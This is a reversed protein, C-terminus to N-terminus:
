EIISNSIDHISTSTIVSFDFIINSLVSNSVLHVLFSNSLVLDQLSLFFSETNNNLYAQTTLLEFSDTTSNFFMDMITAPNFFNSLNNYYLFNTKCEGFFNIIHESSLWQNLFSM